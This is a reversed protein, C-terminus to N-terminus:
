INSGLGHLIVDEPLRHTGDTPALLPALHPLWDANAAPTFQAANLEIGNTVPLHSALLASHIAAYGPNTLDQMVLQMGHAHAWAASALAFSHGRCTKVAIGSWGQAHALELDAFSTLGEDLIAPKRQAIAHWDFAHKAIDRATPQEIYELVAYADPSFQELTDLYATVADPNEFGCNPDAALRAGPVAAFVSATRAADAAPDKGSLKLKFARYGAGLTDLDDTAGVIWWATLAPNPPQLVAQIEPFDAYLDSDLANKQLAQGTADHLAADLPALCILRALPPLPSTDGLVSEHLRLGLTLPHDPPGCLTTLKEALAETYTRMASDRETHTLTPDPWGWLDSLYIAGIGEAERGEVRVRVFARAETVHTISGSSLVLPRAFEREIFAVRASLILTDM